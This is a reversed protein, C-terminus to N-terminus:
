ARPFDVAFLLLEPGDASLRATGAPAMGLKKVTRISAENGPKVVAAIRRLGLRAVGDAIAASAAEVAYGQNWFEPLLAFGVDPDALTERKVLGCIGIPARDAKRLTLCLGFGNARYSEVPSTRIYTRAEDLTRVGKDGIWELFSPDNLLRLIFTADDETLPRLVLRDTELPNV